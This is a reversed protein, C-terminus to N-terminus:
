ESSQGTVTVKEKAKGKAKTTSAALSKKFKKKMESLLVPSSNEIQRQRKEIMAMARDAKVGVGADAIKRTPTMLGSVTRRVASALGRHSGFKKLSEVDIVTKKTEGKISYSQPTLSFSWYDRKVSMKQEGTIRVDTTPTIILQITSRSRRISVHYTTTWEINLGLQVKGKQGAEAEPSSAPPTLLGNRVISEKNSMTFTFFPDGKQSKGADEKAWVDAAWNAILVTLRDMFVATSQHKLVASPGDVRSGASEPLTRKVTSSFHKGQCGATMGNVPKKRLDRGRYPYPREHAILTQVYQGDETSIKMRRDKLGTLDVNTWQIGWDRMGKKTLWTWGDAVLRFSLDLSSGFLVKNEYPRSSMGLTSVLFGVSTLAGASSRPLGAWICNLAHLVITM